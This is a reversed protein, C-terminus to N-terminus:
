VKSDYTQKNICHKTSKLEHDLIEEIPVFYFFAGIGLNFLLISSHEKEVVTDM